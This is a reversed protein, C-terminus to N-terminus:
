EGGPPMFLQRANRSTAAAAEEPPIGKLGALAELSIRVDAPGTPIRKEGERRPVPCDTELIIRELPAVSLVARLLPSGAAAPPASIFYGAALIDELLDLPGTYWHFVARRM